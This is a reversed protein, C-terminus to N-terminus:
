PVTPTMTLRLEGPAETTAVFTAYYRGAPLLLSQKTNAEIGRDLPDWCSACRTIRVGVGVDEESEVSLEYTGEQAVDFARFASIQLSTGSPGFVGPDDCQVDVTLDLIDGQWEALPSDCELLAIRNSWEACVPYSEFALVAESLPEGFHEAFAAEYDVRRDDYETARMFAGVAELDHREILFRVFRGMTFYHPKTIQFSDLVEALPAQEQVTDTGNNFVEAIGEVFSAPGRWGAALTVAHALEHRNVPWTSIVADERACGAAIDRTCFGGVRSQEVYVFLVPGELQVGVLEALAAVFRDQLHFSGECILDDRDTAYVLHEGSWIEPPFDPACALLTLALIRTPARYM